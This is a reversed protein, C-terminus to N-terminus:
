SLCPRSFLAPELYHPLIPKGGLPTFALGARLYLDPKEDPLTRLRNFCCAKM